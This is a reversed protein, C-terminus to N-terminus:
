FFFINGSLSLFYANLQTLDSYPQTLFNDCADKNSWHCLSVALVNYKLLFPWWHTIIIWINYFFTTIGRKRKQLFLNRDSYKNETFKVMTTYFFISFIELINKLPLFMQFCTQLIFNSSLPKFILQHLSAMTFLCWYLVILKLWKIM